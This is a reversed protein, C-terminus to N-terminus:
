GLVVGACGVADELEIVCVVGAACGTAEKLVAHASGVLVVGLGCVGLGDCIRIAWEANPEPVGVWCGMVCCCCGGGGDLRDLGGGRVVTTDIVVALGKMELTEFAKM